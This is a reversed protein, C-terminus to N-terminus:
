PLRPSLARRAVRWRVWELARASVRRRQAQPEQERPALRASDRRREQGPQAQPEQRAQQPGAM